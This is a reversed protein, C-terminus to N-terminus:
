RTLMPYSDGEILVFASVKFGPHTSKGDVKIQFKLPATPPLQLVSLIDEELCAISESPVFFGNSISHAQGSECLMTLSVYQAGALGSTNGSRIGALENPSAYFSIGEDEILLSLGGEEPTSSRGLINAIAERFGM